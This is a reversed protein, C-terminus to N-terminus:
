QLREGEGRAIPALKDPNVVVFVSSISEAEGSSAVTLVSRLEGKVFFLLGVGGSVPAIRLEGSAAWKHALSAVFRAM